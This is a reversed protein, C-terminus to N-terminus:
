PQLVIFNDFLVETRPANLTGVMLGAEGSSFQDDSVSALFTNNVSFSLQNGICDAQLYNTAAGPHIADSPFMEQGSLLIPEGDVVKGIGYYADSSIALFYYNQDDQAHCVLGFLDDVPGDQKQTQVELHVDAFQLGPSAWGLLHDDGIEIAYYGDQYQSNIEPDRIQLVWGSHPKSFDDQFLLSGPESNSQNTVWSTMGCALTSLGILSLFLLLFPKKRM